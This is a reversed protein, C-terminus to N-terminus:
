SYGSCISNSLPLMYSTMSVKGNVKASLHDWNLLKIDHCHLLFERFSMKLVWIDCHTNWRLSRTHLHTHTHTHSIYIYIYLVHTHLITYSM